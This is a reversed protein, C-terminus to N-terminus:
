GALVANVVPMTLGVLGGLAGGMLNVYRLQDAIISRILQEVRLLDFGRIRAEVMQELDLQRVLVPLQARLVEMAREVALDVLSSESQPTLRVWKRVEAGSAQLRQRLWAALLGAWAQVQEPSPQSLALLRARLDTWSGDPLLDGLCREAHQRYERLLFRGLREQTEPSTIWAAAVFGVREAVAQRHRGLVEALPQHLFANISEILQAEVKRRTQPSHLYDHAVRPIRDRVAGRIEDAFLALGLGGLLRMLSGGEEEAHAELAGLVRQSIHEVNEPSSLWAALRQLLAPVHSCLRDHLLQRLDAPVLEELPEATDLYHDLQQLLAGALSERTEARGLAIGLREVLEEAHPPGLIEGLRLTRLYEEVRDLLGHRLAAGAEGASWEALGQLAREVWGELGEQQWEVPLAAFLRSLDTRLLQQLQDQAFRRLHTQLEPREAQEVVYSPHLLDEGVVRAINRALKDRNRPIVGQWGLTYWRPQLPRFLSHIAIANTSYGILAGLAASAALQEPSVM